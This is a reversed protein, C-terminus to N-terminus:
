PGSNPSQSAALVEAEAPALLACCVVAWSGPQGPFRQRRVVELCYVQPHDDPSRWLYAVWYTQTTPRHPQLAEQFSALRDPALLSLALPDSTYGLRRPKVFWANTQVSFLGVAQWYGGLGAISAAVIAELSWVVWPNLFLRFSPRGPVLGAVEEQAVLRLYGWIGAAGVNERLFEGLFEAQRHSEAPDLQQAIEALAAQRFRGFNTVHFLGYSGLGAIAAVWFAAKAGRVKGWRAGAIAGGAAALGIGAALLGPLYVWLSLSSLLAAVLGGSVGALGFTALLGRKPSRRDPRYPEM